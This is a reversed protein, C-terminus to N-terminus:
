SPLCGMRPQKTKQHRQRILLSGAAQSQTRWAAKLKSTLGKQEHDTFISCIWQWSRSARPIIECWVKTVSGTFWSRYLIKCASTMISTQVPNFSFENVCANDTCNELHNQTDSVILCCRLDLFVLSIGIPPCYGIVFTQSLIKALTFLQLMSCITQCESCWLLALGYGTQLSGAYIPYGFIMHCYKPHSSWLILVPFFLKLYINYSWFTWPLSNAQKYTEEVM